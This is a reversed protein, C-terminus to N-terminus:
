RLRTAGGGRSSGRGLGFGAHQALAKLALQRLAPNKLATM